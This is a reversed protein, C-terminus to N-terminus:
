TKPIVTLEISDSSENGELQLEEYDNEVSKTKTYYPDNSDSIIVNYEYVTGGEFVGGEPLPIKFSQWREGRSMVVGIHADLPSSPSFPVIYCYARNGELEMLTSNAGKQTPTFTGDRLYLTVESPNGKLATIQKLEQFGSGEAGQVNLVIKSAVHNFIIPIRKAEKGIVVNEEKWWLYDIDNAFGKGYGNNNAFHYDPMYPKLISVAYFNYTGPALQTSGGWLVDVTGEQRSEFTLERYLSGNGPYDPARYIYIKLYKDKPFPILTEAARTTWSQNHISVSFSVEVADNNMFDDQSCSCLIIVFLM